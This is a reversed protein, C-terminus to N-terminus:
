KSWQGSSLNNIEGVVVSVISRSCQGNERSGQNETKGKEDEQGDQSCLCHCTWVFNLIRLNGIKIILNLICLFTTTSM